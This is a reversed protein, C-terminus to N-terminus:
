NKTSLIKKVNDVSHKKATSSEEETLFSVSRFILNLEYIKGKM